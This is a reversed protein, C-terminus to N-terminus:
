RSIPRTSSWQRARRSTSARPARPSTPATSATRHGARGAGQPRARLLLRPGRRHHHDRPVGRDRDSARLADSFSALMGGSIANLREPRNLTITAVHDSVDFLLDRYEMPTHEKNTPAGRTQARARHDQAAAYRLHGRAAPSGSISASPARSRCICVSPCLHPSPNPAISSLSRPHFISARSRSTM